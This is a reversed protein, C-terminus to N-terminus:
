SESDTNYKHKAGNVLLEPIDDLSDIYWDAGKQNVAFRKERRVAVPIGARLAAEIGYASDEVILCNEGPLELLELCKLYIEPNPKSERFMDGCLIFEMYIDFGCVRAIEKAKEKPTSTATVIRYGHEKLWGLVLLASPFLLEQYSIPHKKGFERYCSRFIDINWEPPCYDRVAEWHGNAAAGVMKVLQEPPVTKQAAELVFEGLRRMYVVESDILVGDMDFIVAKVTSGDFRM